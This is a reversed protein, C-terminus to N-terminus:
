FLPGEEYSVEAFKFSALAELTGPVYLQGKFSMLPVSKRATSFRHM